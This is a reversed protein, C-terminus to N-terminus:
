EDPLVGLSEFREDLESVARLSRSSTLMGVGPSFGLHRQSVQLATSAEKLMPADPSDLAIGPIALAPPIGFNFPLLESMMKALRKLVTWYDAPVLKAEMISGMRPVIHFTKRGEGINQSMRIINDGVSGQAVLEMTKQDRVRFMRLVGDTSASVISRGKLEYSADKGTQAAAKNRIENAQEASELVEGVYVALCGSDMKSHFRMKLSIRSEAVRQIELEAQTKPSFVQFSKFLDALLIYDGEISLFRAM